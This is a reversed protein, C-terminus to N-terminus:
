SNCNIIKSFCYSYRFAVVVVALFGNRYSCLVSQCSGMCTTKLGNPSVNTKEKEGTGDCSGMGGVPKQTAAKIGFYWIV